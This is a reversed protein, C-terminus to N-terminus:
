YDELHLTINNLRNYTQVRQREWREESFTNEGKINVYGYYSAENSEDDSRNNEINKLYEPSEELVAVFLGQSPNIYTNNSEDDFKATPFYWEKAPVM